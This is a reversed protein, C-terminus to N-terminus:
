LYSGNKKNLWIVYQNRSNINICFWAITISSAYGIRRALDLFENPALYKNRNMDLTSFIIQKPNLNKRLSIGRKYRKLKLLLIEGVKSYPFAEM